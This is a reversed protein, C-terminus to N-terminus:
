KIEYIEWNDITDKYLKEIQHKAILEEPVGVNTFVYKIGLKKATEINIYVIRDLGAVKKIVQHQLINIDTEKTSLRMDIHAYQNWYKEYEHEPDIIEMM